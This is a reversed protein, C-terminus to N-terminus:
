PATDGDDIRPVDPVLGLAQSPFPQATIIARQLADLREPMATSSALAAAISREAVTM